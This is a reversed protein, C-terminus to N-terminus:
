LECAHLGAGLDRVDHGVHGERRGGHLGDQRALGHRGADHAHLRRGALLPCAADRLSACTAASGATATSSVPTSRAFPSRLATDPLFQTDVLAGAFSSLPWPVFTAPMRAARSVPVTTVPTAGPVRITLTFTSFEFALPVSECIRHPMSQTVAFAAAQFMRTAFMLM